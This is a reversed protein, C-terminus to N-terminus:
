PPQENNNLGFVEIAKDLDEISPPEADFYDVVQYEHVAKIAEEKILGWLESNGSFEIHQKWGKGVRYAPAYVRYEDEKNKSPVVKIGNLYMGVEPFSVKVMYTGKENRAYVEAYKHGFDIQM